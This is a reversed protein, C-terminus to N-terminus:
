LEAIDLKSDANQWNADFQRSVAAADEARGEAQLAHMLGFLSRPNRPHRELDERFVKEAEPANGGALLAAGLSERVPAIWDPPETYDMADELAVGERLHQAASTYDKKQEAIRAEIMHAAIQPMKQANGPGIPNTPVKGMEPAAKKLGDLEARAQKEDGHTAFAMGRAYHWM